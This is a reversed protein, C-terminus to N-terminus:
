VWEILLQATHVCRTANIQFENSLLFQQETEKKNADQYEKSM